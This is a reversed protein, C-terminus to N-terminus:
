GALLERDRHRRGTGNTPANPNGVIGRRGSLPRDRAYAPGADAGADIQKKLNLDTYPELAGTTRITTVGGALYLRPFSYGMEGYMGGGVPYFMHDHMGVLGPIVSEGHLDLVQADKPVSM